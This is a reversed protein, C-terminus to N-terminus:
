ENRKKRRSSIMYVQLLVAGIAIALATINLLYSDGANSALPASVAKEEETDQVIVKGNYALYNEMITAVTRLNDISINEITDYPTHIKEVDDYILTLANIGAANFPAHDSNSEYLMNTNVMLSRALSAMERSFMNRSDCCLLSLPLDKVSGVMDFNICESKSIDMPPHQVFYSSGVLGEEEANFAAFIVTRQSSGTNIIVNICELLMAVGSANDLAGPYITGDADFGVHDFHASLVLPPLTPDWGELIGIVNSVTKKQISLPSKIEFICGKKSYSMLEPVIDENVTIKILGNSFLQQLKYPTRFRLDWSSPVIVAKIGCSLLKKDEDYTYLSEGEAKSKELYIPSSSYLDDSLTGKVTGATSAGSSLEKFDRGYTYEKVKKGAADYIKFSCGGDIVPVVVQFAQLYTGNDGAPILGKEKFYQQIYQAAMENGKDGALRGRYKEQCLENITSYINNLDFSEGAYALVNFLLIFSFVFVLCKKIRM